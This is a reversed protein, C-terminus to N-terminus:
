TCICINTGEFSCKRSSHKGQVQGNSAVIWVCTHQTTPTIIHPPRFVNISQATPSPEMETGFDLETSFKIAYVVEFALESWSINYNYGSTNETLGSITVGEVQGPLM